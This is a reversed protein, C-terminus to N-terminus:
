EVVFNLIKGSVFIVQKEMKSALHRKVASNERATEEVFNQDGAKEAEIEIVARTKGNVQVAIRVTEAAALKADFSPWKALHVSPQNGAKLWIEEALHPAFSALLRSFTGLDETSLAEGKEEWSNVFKMFAAITTNFKIAPIDRTVKDVLQALKQKLGKSSEKGVKGEDILVLRHIRELFRYAGAAGRMSWAIVQNWPGMFMEYIRLTDAGYMAVIEDPNIVNGVSKSMKAHGEGLVMGVSRLRTFPEKISLFGLDSFVKVWFRAYLLHLVAHEAGGLYWDVPLWEAIASKSFPEKFNKPDAFRLFYWCSGAWNPMTDTERKAPGGCVSCKVDVWQRIQSLPSKGTTTPEYYRVDPLEVPLQNDPVPVVGNEDGCKACYVLPIPEGWYHQRSFIWDRLHYTTKWQAFGKEIMWEAMKQKGEGWASMGDFQGSNVLVGEGEYAMEAGRVKENIKKDSYSVVQVIKLGHKKAFDFDRGDHAPVGMVAGTGIDKLVYDAIWVAIREGNVANIAYVGTFVGTKDKEEIKRQRETKRAAQNIYFSVKDQFATPIPLKGVIPHEPALVLFTTGFVTEWFKTWVTIPEDLGEVMFDINLGRNKGIWDRQMELIGRPWDLGELDKLLRDAYDTIRFLWQETKRRSVPKGCREHTGNGTVEENALVTKCADCWNIGVIDKYILRKGQQNKLSYMKLFLWQTWRYYSPDTTAFERSWDYGFGIMQMQRRFNDINRKALIKPNIKEKIAANETPLGFADWGMPHLVKKGNMRLFRSLVDTGTYIRVHGVHLGDGSPYPFMGLVYEKEGKDPTKYTQHKQWYKQWRPEIEKPNYIPKTNM